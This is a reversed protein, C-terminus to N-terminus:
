SNAFLLKIIEFEKKIRDDFKGLILQNYNNKSENKDKSFILGLFSNYKQLMNIKNNVHNLIFQAKHNQKNQFFSSKNYINTDIKFFMDELLEKVEQENKCEKFIIYSRKLFNIMYANKDSDNLYQQADIVRKIKM